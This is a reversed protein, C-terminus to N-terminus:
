MLGTHKPTLLCVAEPISIERLVVSGEFGTPPTDNRQIQALLPTQTAKPSFADWAAPCEHSPIM